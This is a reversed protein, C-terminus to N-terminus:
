GERERVSMQSRAARRGRLWEQVFPLVVLVLGAAFYAPVYGPPMPEVKWEFDWRAPEPGLAVLAAAQRPHLLALGAAGAWPLALQVAHVWQEVPPIRRRRDAYALDIWTTVEHAACCALVLALVGADVELLLAAALGVGLEALMLLHILSEGPGATHEIRQVRHCLWDALGALLWAPLLLWLLAARLLDETSM